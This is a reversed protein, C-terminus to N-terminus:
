ALQKHRNTGQCLERKYIEIKNIEKEIIKYAVQTHIHTNCGCPNATKKM